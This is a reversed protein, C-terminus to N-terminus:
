SCEKQKETIVRVGREDLVGIDRLTASGPSLDLCNESIVLLGGAFSSNRVLPSIDSVLNDALMLDRLATLEELVSIDSIQNASLSLFQLESFYSLGSVDTLENGLLHLNVFRRSNEHRKVREIVDRLKYGGLGVGTLAPWSHILELEELDGLPLYGINLYTLDLLAELPAISTIPNDSINLERLNELQVLATIDGILNGAVDLIRLEKLNSLPAIDLAIGTNMGNYALDFERLKTLGQLPTLDAVQNFPLSLVELNRAHQLGHLSKISRGLETLAKLSRLHECRLPGGSVHLAERIASRLAVDTVEVVQTPDTCALSEDPPTHSGGPSAPAGCAGILLVLAIVLVYTRPKM